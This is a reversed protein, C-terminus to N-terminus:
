LIALLWNIRRGFKWRVFHTVFSHFGGGGQEGEIGCGLAEASDADLRDLSLDRGAPKSNNRYPRSSEDAHGLDFAVYRLLLEPTL